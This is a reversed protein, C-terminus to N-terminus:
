GHLARQRRTQAGGVQSPRHTSCLRRLCHDGVELLGL